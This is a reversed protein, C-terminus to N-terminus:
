SGIVMEELQFFRLEPNAQRLVKLKQSLALSLMEPRGFFIHPTEKQLFAGALSSQHFFYPVSSTDEFFEKLLPLWPSDKQELVLIKKGM